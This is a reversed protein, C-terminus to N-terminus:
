VNWQVETIQRWMQRSRKWSKKGIMIKPKDKVRNLHFRKKEPTVVNAIHLATSKPSETKEKSFNDM